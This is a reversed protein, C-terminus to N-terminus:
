NRINKDYIRIYYCLYISLNLSFIFIKNTMNGITNEFFPNKLLKYFWEFLIGLRRVERLSVSSIEFNNKIFEQADYIANLAINRITNLLEKDNIIKKLINLLISSIYRKIDEKEPTKFDFVFNLLPVPLPNVNYVLNRIKHKAEDYLGIIEAKQTYLRYPNCAAIFKM